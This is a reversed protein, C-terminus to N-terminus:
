PGAAARPLAYAVISDGTKTGLSGHGGAMALVMQRGSPSRYTMTNAQGGAPLRDKWLERGTTVDYARIYYDLTSTLFAVGGATVLPGGLSPVGMEFPLPVPSQDRVTGNRHRYVVAGSRLDVGAVYGWPPQQCPLGIPSVLPGMDVSYPTGHMPNTGTEDSHELDSGGSPTHESGSRAAEEPSRPILRSYFAFYSPNAFAVQRVPDVAIGGWDIIGFNGPYILSGELSPPTFIGDYRLQRFAIRCALQDFLTAGWMDAEVLPPPLLTLASFPQTPSTRDGPAAGQPVPKEPAPVIPAGTRRDLVYLDGRKTPQVLAPVRGGATDIDVLSPQAPVDMDWLDHHVTQYVWRLRGTAIELAVISSSFREMEATRHGGFQDPTPNGLPVYVLGLAEDAASVIWSNPSNRTYTEGPGIPATDDPRGPDFNWVLRGTVVDYARIVGSPEDTSYNDTVEGAIIVLNATVVPPSTSYYMGAHGKPDPMGQWLDVAGGDGFGACPAGTAADLAILRADATPLFIRAPCEGNAAVAGGNEPGHYSVGRCTLHQLNSRVEIKPDYRWIERGTEADLAIAYDHPTCVYLRDGVKVPTLEFTTEGPDGQRPLDGTHYHWAVELRDANAPTIEAVASYRDGHDTGGWAPWDGDSFGGRPAAAAGAVPGPLTGAVDHLDRTMAYVGCGGAVVLAVAVPGAAVLRRGPRLLGLVVLWAGLLFVVDGRAAMPWWDFGRETLAWALTGLIVLAFVAFATLRDALLLLGTLLTGIGIVAYAWSGGLAALWGGGGILALGVLAFVVATAVVLVRRRPYRM